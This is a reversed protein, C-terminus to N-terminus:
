IFNRFFYFLNSNISSSLDLKRNELTIIINHYKQFFDTFDIVNYNVSKDINIYIINITTSILNKIISIISDFINSLKENLITTMIDNVNITNFVKNKSFSKIKNILEIPAINYKSTFNYKINDILKLYNLIGNNYINEYYNNILTILFTSNFKRNMSLIINNIQNESILSDFISLINNMNAKCKNINYNKLNEELLEVENNLENKTNNIEVNIFSEIPIEDLKNTIDNKFASIKLNLISNDFIIFKNIDESYFTYNSIFKVKSTLFKIFNQEQIDM